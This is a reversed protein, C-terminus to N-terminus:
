PGSTPSQPATAPTAAPSGAVTSSGDAPAASQKKKFWEARTPLDIVAELIERSVDLTLLGLLDAEAPGIRYNYQLAEVAAEHLGSFDFAVKVMADGAGRGEDGAGLIAQRRVDDFRMALNWLPAFRPLVSGSQWRGDDGLMSQQPLAHYWRLEGDEETWGRAVPVLWTRDDALLVEHGALQKPRALDAAQPKAAYVGVWVSQSVALPAKRWTQVDAQYHLQEPPMASALALLVGDGGDPGGRVGVTSIPGDLAYALGASSAEDLSIGASRGPLYYLFGSM